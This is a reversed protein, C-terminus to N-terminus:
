TPVLSQTFIYGELSNIYNLLRSTVNELSKNKPSIFNCQSLRNYFTQGLSMKKKFFVNHPTARILSKRGYFM